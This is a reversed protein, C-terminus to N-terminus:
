SFDLLIIKTGTFLYCKTGLLIVKKTIKQYQLPLPIRKTEEKYLHEGILEYGDTFWATEWDFSLYTANKIPLKRRFTGMNDFVLIGNTKDVLFVQNQYETLFVFDYSGVGVLLDLSTKIVTKEQQMAYKKLSFDTDDLVWLQNDLAPAVLRAFGVEQESFTATEISTLFRDVFTYEQNDRCFAVIRLSNRAELLSIAINKEPSYNTPLLQLLSDYRLIVGRSTTVYVNGYSDVSITEHAVEVSDLVRFPQAFASISLFSLLCALVFKNM